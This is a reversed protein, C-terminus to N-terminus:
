VVNSQNLHFRAAKAGSFRELKEVRTHTQRRGSPIESRLCVRSLQKDNEERQGGERVLGLGGLLCSCFFGGSLSSSSFFCTICFPKKEEGFRLFLPGKRM